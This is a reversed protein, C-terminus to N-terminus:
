ISAAFLGAEGYAGYAWVVTDGTSLKYANAGLNASEPYMVGDSNYVRYQWSPGWNENALTMTDKTISTVFSDVGTGDKTFTVSPVMSALADMPTAYNVGSETYIKNAIENINSTANVATTDTMKGFYVKTTINNVSAFVDPNIIVGLDLTGTWGGAVPNSIHLTHPGAGLSGDESFSLKAAFGDAVPVAQKTVAPGEEGVWTVTLANVHEETPFPKGVYDSGAGQVYLTVDEEAGVVTNFSTTGQTTLNPVTSWDPEATDAFAPVSMVFVMALALLLALVKSNKKTNM